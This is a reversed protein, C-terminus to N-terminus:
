RGSGLAAAEREREVLVRRLIKGSPSRPIEDVAEIRRIRKHRAVRDAVYARLDDLGAAERLVVFAKPVEGGHRDPSPVVAADAVAPHAQLVAELEAPAVQLGRVKILEKLRDVVFLWGDDDVHGIDGTHFWGNADIAAATAEDDRLYGRMVQPGRIVIEGDAGAALPEGSEIDVARCETGPLPPGVSGPKATMGPGEPPLHTVPSTETLGYGQVVRCGIRDAVAGALREDLPAAGSVVLDLSGLDYRDVLPHKSLALLIPPVLFARTVGYREITELFAALDFRAMTVVTAGRALAFNMNVTLGYIHFYPLVALLVDDEGCRFVGEVQVINATLNRHTLIVGKPFGTTGSSYPLAALDEPGAPEPPVADAHLAQSGVVLVQAGGAAASVVPALEATTIVFRARADELQRAIEGPTFAPNVPTVVGGRELTGHFVVAFEPVNPLVVGVVDGPRHGAGALGGAAAAIEGPLDGYAIARGSASDVLAPKPGLRGAHRLVLPTLSSDPLDIM